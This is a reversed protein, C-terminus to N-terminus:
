GKTKQKRFLMPSVGCNKKFCKSFAGVNAYGVMTAIKEISSIDNTLLVKAVNLRKSTILMQPTLNSKEKCIRRLHNTSIHVHRAIDSVTIYEAYHLNIYSIIQSYYIDAQRNIPLPSSKNIVNSLSLVEYLKACLFLERNLNDLNGYVTDLFLQLIKEQNHFLTIIPQNPLNILALQYELDTGSLAIWSLELPKKPDNIISYMQNQPAFFMQGASIPKGNFTGCGSFVFHIIYRDIQRDYTNYEKWCKAYGFTAVYFKAPSNHDNYLRDAFFGCNGDDIPIPSLSHKYITEANEGPHHHMYVIM